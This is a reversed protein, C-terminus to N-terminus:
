VMCSCGRPRQVCVRYIKGKVRLSAGKATLLVKLDMFKGWARRVRAISSEGAGGGKGIVDGLYCFKEVVVMKDNNGLVFQKVEDIVKVCGAICNRCTFNVM